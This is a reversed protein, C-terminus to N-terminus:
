KSLIPGIIEEFHLNKNTILDAHLRVLIEPRLRFFAETNNRLVACRIAARLAAADVTETTAICKELARHIRSTAPILHGFLKFIPAAAFLAQHLTPPNLGLGFGTLCRSCQLYADWVPWLGYSYSLNKHVLGYTACLAAPISSFELNATQLLRVFSELATYAVDAHDGLKHALAFLTAVCASYVAPASNGEWNQRSLFSVDKLDM